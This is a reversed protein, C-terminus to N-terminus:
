AETIGLGYAIYLVNKMDDEYKAPNRIVDQLGLWSSYSDNKAGIEGQLANTHGRSLIPALKKVIKRFIRAMPM